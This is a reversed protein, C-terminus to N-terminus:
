GSKNRCLNKQQDEALGVLRFAYRDLSFTQVQLSSSPSLIKLAILLAGAAKESPKVSALPYSTMSEELIYKALSHHKVDVYGAKSNRRLFNLAIPKGLNFGLAKMIELEKALIEQLTSIINFNIHYDGLLM